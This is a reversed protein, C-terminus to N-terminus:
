FSVWMFFTDELGNTKPKAKEEDCGKDWHSSLIITKNNVFLILQCIYVSIRVDSKYCLTEM